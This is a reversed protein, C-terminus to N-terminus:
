EHAFEGNNIYNFNLFFTVFKIIVPVSFLLLNTSNSPSSLLKDKIYQFKNIIKRFISAIIELLKGIIGSLIEKSNHLIIIIIEVFNILTNFLCRIHEM